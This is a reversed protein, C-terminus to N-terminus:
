PGAHPAAGNGARRGPYPWSAPGYGPLALRNM